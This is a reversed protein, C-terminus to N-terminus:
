WTRQTQAPKGEIICYYACATMQVMRPAYPDPKPNTALTDIIRAIGYHMWRPEVVESKAYQM